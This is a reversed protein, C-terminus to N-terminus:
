AFLLGAFVLSAAVLAPAGARFSVAANDKNGGSSSSSSNSSSGSGSSTASGTALSKCVDGNKPLASAPVLVVPAGNKSSASVAGEGDTTIKTCSVVDVLDTNAAFGSGSGPVKWSASGSSGVNTFLALLSGKSVALTKEDAVPFTMKTTLFDKNASIAAKRAANLAKVQKV